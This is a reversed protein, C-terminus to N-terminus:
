ENINLNTTKRHKYHSRGLKILNDEAFSYFESEGIIVHDLLQVKVTQLASKLTTTFVIDAESPVPSGDPHNHVVILKCAKRMVTKTIIMQEDVGTSQPTGSTLKESGIIRLNRSLYLLWCEEHDLAALTPEMCLYVDRAEKITTPNREPEQAMLRRALEFAALLAAAKDMGIGSVECLQHASLKAVAALRNGNAALLCRAVDLVNRKGTGTRLLIAILDSNSLADVGRALLKERPREDPSLM